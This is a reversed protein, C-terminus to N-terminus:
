QSNFDYISSGASPAFDGIADAMGIRVAEDASFWVENRNLDDWHQAEMRVHQRVIAEIRQDDLALSHLRSQIQAATSAVSAGLSTRHMMFTGHASVKRHRAGLFAVAAISCLSGGNYITLPFSAAKFYNYLLVGDGIVGGSSQFLLHVHNGPNQSAIDLYHVLRAASTQDIGGYFTAYVHRVEPPPATM